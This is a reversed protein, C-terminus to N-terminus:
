QPAEECAYVEDVAIFEEQARVQAEAWEEVEERPLPNGKRSVWRPTYGGADLQFRVCWRTSHEQIDSM